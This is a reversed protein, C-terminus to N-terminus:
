SRGKTTLMRFNLVTTHMHAPLYEGVVPLAIFQPKRVYDVNRFRVIEFVGRIVVLYWVM